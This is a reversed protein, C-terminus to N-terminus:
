LDCDQINERYTFLPFIRIPSNPSDHVLAYTYAVTPCLPCLPCLLACHCKDVTALESIRRQLKLNTRWGFFLNGMFTGFYAFFIVFRSVSPGVSSDDDIDDYHKLM